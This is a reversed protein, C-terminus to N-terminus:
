FRRSTGDSWRVLTKSTAYDRTPTTCVARLQEHLLANEKRLWINAQKLTGHEDELQDHSLGDQAPANTKGKVNDGTNKWSDCARGVSCQLSELRTELAQLRRELGEFDRVRSGGFLENRSESDVPVGDNGAREWPRCFMNTALAESRREWSDDALAQKLSQKLESLQAVLVGAEETAHSGFTTVKADHLAAPRTQLSSPLGLSRLQIIAGELESSVTEDQRSVEAYNEGLSEQLHGPFKALDERFLASSIRKSEKQLDSHNEYAATAKALLRLLLSNLTSASDIHRLSM